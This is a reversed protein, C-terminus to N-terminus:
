HSISKEEYYIDGYYRSLVLNDKWKATHRNLKGQYNKLVYEPINLGARMALSTGGGMRPNVDIFYFEGERNEIVQICCPGFFKLTKCFRKICEILRRNRVTKAKTSLGAQVQLRLRPVISVVSGNPNCYLDITWETGDIYEQIVMDNLDKSLGRLEKKDKVITVDKSSTGYVPKIVIPFKDINVIKEYSKPTCFGNKALHEAMKKKNLTAELTENEPIFIMVNMKEFWNRNDQLSFLSYHSLPIVIDIKEKKIIEGIEKGFFESDFSSVLYSKDCLFRTPAYKLTDTTLIRFVPLFYKLHDYKMGAGLFLISPSKLKRAAIRISVPMENEMVDEYIMEEISFGNSSLINKLGDPLVRQYDKGHIRFNVPVTLLLLGGPRLLRRMNLLAAEPKNLHELVETCIVCDNQETNELYTEEVNFFTCTKGQDINTASYRVDKDFLGTYDALPVAPDSGIEIIQHFEQRYKECYKKVFNYVLVRLEIWRPYLQRYNKYDYFNSIVKDPLHYKDILYKIDKKYM